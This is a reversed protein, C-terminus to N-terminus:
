GLTFNSKGGPAYKVRVSTKVQNNSESQQEKPQNQNLSKFNKNGQSPENQNMKNYVSYNDNKKYNNSSSNDWGLQISSQGGPPAHLKVSTTGNSNFKDIFRANVNQPDVM